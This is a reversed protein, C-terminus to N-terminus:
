NTEITTDANELKAGQRCSIIDVSKGSVKTSLASSYSHSPCYVTLLLVRVAVSEM